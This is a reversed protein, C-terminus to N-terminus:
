LEVCFIYQKILQYNIYNIMGNYLKYIQINLIIPSEDM